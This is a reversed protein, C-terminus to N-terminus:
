KGGISDHEDLLKPDSGVDQDQKNDDPLNDYVKQSSLYEQAIDKVTFTPTSNKHMMVHVVAKLTQPPMNRFVNEYDAEMLMQQQLMLAEDVSSMEPHCYKDVIGVVFASDSNKIKRNGSEYNCSTLTALGLAAVFLMFSATLFGKIWKGM